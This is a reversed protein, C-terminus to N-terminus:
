IKKQSSSSYDFFEILENVKQKRPKRFYKISIYVILVLIGIGIVILILTLINVRAGTKQSIIKEKTKNQNNQIFLNHYFGIKEIRDNVNFVM